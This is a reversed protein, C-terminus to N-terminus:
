HLFSNSSFILSIAFGKFNINDKCEIKNEEKVKVLGSINFKDINDIMNEEKILAGLNIKDISEIINDGKVVDIKNDEKKIASFRFNDLNNTLKTNNNMINFKLEIIEIYIINSIISILKM